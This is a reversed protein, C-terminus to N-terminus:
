TPTEVNDWDKPDLLNLLWNLAHHRQEVVGAAPCMTAQIREKDGSWDLEEPVVGDHRLVADRIAWHIRMTLDQADLIQAKPRLKAGTIFSRDAERTIVIDVLSEVNCMGKPWDLKRVYRLAWLLVWIAELGWVRRRCDESDLTRAKLFAKESPTASDWLDLQKILGLSKRKPFGEARQDVAWLVMVRRAVDRASQMKVKKDDGVFLPGPFVPVKRRKLVAFSRAARQAQRSTAYSWTEPSPYKVVM